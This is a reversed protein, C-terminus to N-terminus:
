SIIQTCAHVETNVCWTWPVPRNDTSPLYCNPSRRSFETAIIIVTQARSNDRQM